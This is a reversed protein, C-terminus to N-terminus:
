QGKVSDLQQQLAKNDPQAAAPNSGSNDVSNTTPPNLKLKNGWAGLNGIVEAATRTQQMRLAESFYHSTHAWAEVLFSIPPTRGGYTATVYTFIQESAMIAAQLPFWNPTLVSVHSLSMFFARIRKFLEFAVDVADVIVEEAVPARGAVITLRHGNTPNINSRTRIKEALWVSLCPPSACYDRWLKGLSTAIMLQSDPLEYNHRATWAAKITIEEKLPIVAEEDTATGTTPNRDIKYQDNCLIWFKKVAITDGPVEAKIIGKAILPKAYTAM